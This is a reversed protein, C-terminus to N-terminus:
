KVEGDIVNYEGCVFVRFDKTDCKVGFDVKRFMDSVGFWFGGIGGVYVFGEWASGPAFVFVCENISVFGDCARDYFVWGGDPWWNYWFCIEIM